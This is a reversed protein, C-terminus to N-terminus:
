LNIMRQFNHEVRQGLYEVIEKTIAAKSKNVPMQPVGLGAVRAIPKASKTTRTFVLKGIRFPPQGGQHAMKAPLKSSKGKLLRTTIIQRVGAKPKGTGGAASFKDGVIGRVGSVPIVCGLGGNIMRFSKINSGIWAPKAEYEKPIERKMIVGTKRATDKFSSAMMQHFKKESLQTRMKQAKAIVDSCDVTLRAFNTAM